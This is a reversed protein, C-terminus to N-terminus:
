NRDSFATLTRIRSRLRSRLAVGLQVGARHSSDSKSTYGYPLSNLRVQGDHDALLM